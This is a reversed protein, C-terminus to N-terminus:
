AAEGAIASLHEPEGTIQALSEVLPLLFPAIAATVEAVVDSVDQRKGNDTDEDSGVDEGSQKSRAEMDYRILALSLLTMGFAYRDRIVSVQKPKEKIAQEVFVNSMNIFYDYNVSSADGGPPRKIRMATFKDFHPEHDAWEKEWVHHPLPLNLRSDNKADDGAKESGKERKKSPPQNDQDEREPMVGLRFRNVFPEVRSPDSVEAEFSLSDGVKAEPPLSMSLTAAGEFLHPTRWNKAAHRQGDVVYYLKLDGPEEDRRFYDNEADTDFSVRVQSNLHADRVLTSGVDVGRLYFKTPFRKGVWEKETAEVAHPKFPNEIRFGPGLIKELLPHKKVMAEMFDKFSDSM